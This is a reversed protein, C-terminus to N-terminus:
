VPMQYIRYTRYVHAGYPEGVNAVIRNMMDNNELIWSMETSQYGNEVAAKLTEFMLLTEIGRGRHEEVVGMIMLRAGTIKRAYWLAKIWGFPFL